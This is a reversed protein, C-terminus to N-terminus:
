SRGFDTGPTPAKLAEAARFSELLPQAQHEICSAVSTARVESVSGPSHKAIVEAVEHPDRGWKAISTLVANREVAAWNVADPNGGAAALADSAACGFIYPSGAASKVLAPIAAIRQLRAVAEAPELPLAASADDLAEVISRQLTLDMGMSRMCSSLWAPDSIKGVAKHFGRTLQAGYPRFAKDFADAPLPGWAKLMMALDIIDRSVTSTDLVRDANAMLKQAWLDTRSLTPVGLEANFSGSLKTNGERVFEVKVRAGDLELCTLIKYQNSKPERAQVVPSKLVPGLDSNVAGRLLRFGAESSCLFDIDVSERYEGLQLSIATGGGFYCEAQQLFDSDFSQLLKAIVQHHPRKFM